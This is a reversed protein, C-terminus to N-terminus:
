EIRSLTKQSDIRCSVLNSPSHARNPRKLRNVTSAKKQCRPRRKAQGTSLLVLVLLGQSVATRAQSTESAFRYWFFMTRTTCPRPCMGPPAHSGCNRKKRCRCDFFRRANLDPIPRFGTVVMTSRGEHLAHGERKPGRGIFCGVINGCFASVADYTFSM